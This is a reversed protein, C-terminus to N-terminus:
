MLGPLKLPYLWSFSSNIVQYKSIKHRKRLKTLIRLRKSFTKILCKNCRSLHDILQSTKITRNVMQLSCRFNKYVSNKSNISLTKSIKKMLAKNRLSSWRSCRNMLIVDWWQHCISIRLLFIIVWLFHFTQKLNKYLIHIRM